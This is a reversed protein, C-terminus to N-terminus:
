AQEVGYGSAALSSDAQRDVEFQDTSSNTDTAVQVPTEYHDLATTDVSWPQLAPSFALASAAHNVQTVFTNALYASVHHRHRCMKELLGPVTRALREVVRQNFAPM